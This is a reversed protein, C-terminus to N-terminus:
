PGVIWRGMSGLGELGPIAIRPAPGVRDVVGQTVVWSFWLEGWFFRPVMLIKPKRCPDEVEGMLMMCKGYPDELEKGGGTMSIEPKRYPDRPKGMLIEPVGMLIEANERM